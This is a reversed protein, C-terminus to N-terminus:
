ERSYADVFLPLSITESLPFSELAQKASPGFPRLEGDRGGMVYQIWALAAMAGIREGQVRPDNPDGKGKDQWTVWFRQLTARKDKARARESPENALRLGHPWVELSVSGEVTRVRGFLEQGEDASWVIIGRERQVECEGLFYLWMALGLARLEGVDQTRGEPGYREVLGIAAAGKEAPIALVNPLARGPEWAQPPLGTQPLAIGASRRATVHRSLQVRVEDASTAEGSAFVLRLADPFLIPFARVDAETV